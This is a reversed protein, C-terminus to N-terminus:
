DTLDRTRWRACPVSLRTRREPSNASTPITETTIAHIAIRPDCVGGVFVGAGGIAVGAAFGGAVFGGAGAGGGGGRRTTIM